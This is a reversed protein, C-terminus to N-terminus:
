TTHKHGIPKAIYFYLFCCKFSLYRFVFVYRQFVLYFFSCNKWCSLRPRINTFYMSILRCYIREFFISPYRDGEPSHYSAPFLGVPKVREFWLMVSDMPVSVTLRTFINWVRVINNYNLTLVTCSLLGGAAGKQIFLIDNYISKLDIRKTCRRM